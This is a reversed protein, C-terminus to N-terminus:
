TKYPNQCICICSGHTLQVIVVILLHEPNIINSIQIHSHSHFQFRCLHVALCQNVIHCIARTGNKQFNKM